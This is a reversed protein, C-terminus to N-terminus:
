ILTNVLRRPTHGVQFRVESKTVLPKILFQLVFFFLNVQPDLHWFPEM